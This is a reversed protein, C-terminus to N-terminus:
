PQLEQARKKQRMRIVAYCLGYAVFASALVFFFIRQNLTIMFAIVSIALLWMFTEGLFGDAWKPKAGSSPLKAVLSPLLRPVAACYARFSEGQSGVLGAEERLILRYSFFIIGLVLVAFGIRSAMLGFGLALFINGLYLPNRVYRYPGDAVLRTTHMRADVMVEPNLYATGWTRLAAAAICFLSGVGFIAHYAAEGATVGSYRAIQEVIAAGANQQDVAYTSFAIWFLIGFIWFRFKFEFNSAAFM